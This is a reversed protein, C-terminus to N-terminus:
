DEKRDHDDKDHDDKDHDDKDRDRDRRDPCGEVRKEISEIEYIRIEFIKCRDILIVFDDKVDCLVGKFKKNIVVFRFRNDKLLDRIDKDHM